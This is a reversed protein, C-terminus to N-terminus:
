VAAMKWRSMCPTALAISKREAPEMMCAAWSSVSMRLIPPRRFRIGIVEAANVTPASASAPM